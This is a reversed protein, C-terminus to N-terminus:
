GINTLEIEINMNTANWTIGFTNTSNWLTTVYIMIIGYRRVRLEHIVDDTMWNNMLELYSIEMSIDMHYSIEMINWSIEMTNMLKRGNEEGCSMKTTAPIKGHLLGNRVNGLGLSSFSPSPSGARHWHSFSPVDLTLWLFHINFWFSFM